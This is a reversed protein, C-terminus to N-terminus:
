NRHSGAKDRTLMRIELELRKAIEEMSFPKALDRGLNSGRADGSKFFVNVARAIESPSTGRMYFALSISDLLWRHAPIDSVILPKNMALYELVKTPCQYRWWPHDPLAMLGADCAAIYTPVASYDVPGCVEVYDELNNAEIYRDIDNKLPGSGLLILRVKALQGQLIRFAEVMEMIGRGGSLVGHYLFGRRAYLGLELRLKRTDPIARPDFVNTDVASPWVSIKEKTFHLKSAYMEGLMPSIFFLRDFFIASLKISLNFISEVMITRLKGGTEVPNSAMRLLVVPAGKFFRNLVLVPLLLPCSYGDLVLAEYRPIERLCRWFTILQALVLSIIPIVKRIPIASFRFSPVNSLNPHANGLTAVVCTVENGRRALEVLQRVNSELDIQSGYVGSMAV